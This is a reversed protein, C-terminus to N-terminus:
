EINLKRITQIQQRREGGQRPSTRCIKVRMNVRADLLEEATYGGSEQHMAFMPFVHLICQNEKSGKM